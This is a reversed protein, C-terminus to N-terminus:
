GGAGDGDDTPAVSQEGISVIDGLRVRAGSVELEPFGHDFFIGTVTGRAFTSVEVPHDDADFAQVEFRYRGGGAMTGSDTMGDWAVNASGSEQAGIEMTRVVGGYEDYITVEGRAADGSLEFQLDSGGTGSYEFTDGVATVEQGVLSAAQMNSLSLQGLQVGSLQDNMNSLQELSSFQALQAVFETNEMPQLPDQNQLQTVLLQLFDDKGLSNQQLADSFQSEATENVGGLASITM